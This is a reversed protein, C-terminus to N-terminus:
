GGRCLDKNINGSREMEFRKDIGDRKSVSYSEEKDIEGMATVMIM